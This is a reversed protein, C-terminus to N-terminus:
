DKESFTEMDSIDLTTASSASTNYSVITKKSYCPCDPGCHSIDANNPREKNCMRIGQNILHGEFECYTYESREPFKPAVEPPVKYFNNDM